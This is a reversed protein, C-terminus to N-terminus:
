FFRGTMIEALMKDIKKQTTKESHNFESQNFKEILFYAELYLKLNDKILTEHSVGKNEITGVLKMAFEAADIEFIKKDM